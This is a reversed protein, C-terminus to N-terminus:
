LFEEKKMVAYFVSHTGFLSVFSPRMNKTIRECSNVYIIKFGARKLRLIMLFPNTLHWPIKESGSSIFIDGLKLQNFESFLIKIFPLHKTFINIIKKIHFGLYVSSFITHTTFIFFGNPKLVRYIEKLCQFRACRSPIAEIGNYSFLINEYSNDQICLNTADGVIFDCLINENKAKEKAFHILRKSIDLGTIKKSYLFKSLLFTTRGGGCGIDLLSKDKYFYRNFIFEEGERFSIESTYSKYVKETDYYNAVSSQNYFDYAKIM